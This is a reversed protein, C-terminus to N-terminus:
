AATRAEEMVSRPFRASLGYKKLIIGAEVDPDDPDGLIEVVRGAASSNKTPWKTIEVEAMVGDAVGKDCGAPIIIREIIREESPVLECINKNRHVAGVLTKNARKLVRIVRGERRGGEKQGEVRAVVTDGHMAGASRRRGIFVDTELAAAGAKREPIVFGYGDAHCQLTGTVLNMRDALGYRGGRVKVLMGGDVLGRIRAKFRSKKEVPVSFAKILERMSVPRSLKENLEEMFGAVARDSVDKGKKM